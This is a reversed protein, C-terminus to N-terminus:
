VGALIEPRGEYWAPYVFEALPAKPPDIMLHKHRLATFAHGHDMQKHGNQAHERAKFLPEPIRAGKLGARAMRKAWDWDLYQQAPDYQGLREFVSRRYVANMWPVCSQGVAEASFEPLGHARDGDPGGFLWLDSYVFDVAAGLLSFVALVSSLFTPRLLDDDCMPLIFDGRAANLGENLKDGHYVAGHKVIIEIQDAPVDSAWVSRLCEILLEPRHSLIVVSITPRYSLNPDFM